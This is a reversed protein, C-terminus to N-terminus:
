GEEALVVIRDVLMPIRPDCPAVQSRINVLNQWKLDTSYSFLTIRSEVCGQGKRPSNDTGTGSMRRM